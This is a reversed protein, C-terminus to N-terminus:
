TWNMGFWVLWLRRQKLLCLAACLSSRVIGCVMILTYQRVSHECMMIELFNWLNSLIECNQCSKVIKVPNWLKSLIECNQCFNVIKVRNWLKLLIEFNQCIKVIKVSSYFKSLIECNQSLKMIKILNRLSQWFTVVKLQGGARIWQQSTLAKCVLHVQGVKM